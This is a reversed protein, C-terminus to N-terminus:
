NLTQLYHAIDWFDKDSPWNSIGALVEDQYLAKLQKYQRSTGYGKLSDQANSKMDQLDEASFGKALISRDEIGVSALDSYTVTSKRGIQAILRKMVFTTDAYQSIDGDTEAKMATLQEPTFGVDLLLDDSISLATLEGYTIGAMKQNILGADTFYMLNGPKYLQSKSVWNYLNDLQKPDDVEGPVDGQNDLIGAALSKRFAVQTLNPGRNGAAPSNDVAHCVICQASGMFLQAGRAVSNNIVSEPNERSAKSWAAWNDKLTPTGETSPATFGNPAASGKLTKSVWAEFDETEMVDSRFLMYAHAEGCYEACQGYYHGPEDALIWMWNTRGPMLDVKGAIKPLWFSHIVDVSRLNLKVVKGKPIVLENGTTIGLQPYEFSFWWQWGYVNVELVKDEEGESIDGKFWTGLKSPEYYPQDVPLEHTLWIGKVTPVAIFVLLFVSGGILGIETLPNGHGQEPLPKDEDGPKERFKFVAYLLAGGVAIFLGLTLWVTVMFLDLQMQAIPGKPDLTSQHTVPDSGITSTVYLVILLLGLIGLIIKNM